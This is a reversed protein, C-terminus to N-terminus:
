LGPSKGDDNVPGKLHTHKHESVHLRSFVVTVSPFVFDDEFAELCKFSWLTVEALDLFIAAFLRSRWARTSSSSDEASYRSSGIRAPSNEM